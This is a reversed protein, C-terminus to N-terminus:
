ASSEQSASSGVLMDAGLMGVSLAEATVALVEASKVFSVVKATASTSDTLEGFVLVEETTSAFTVVLKDFALVVLEATILDVLTMDGLAVECIVETTAEQVFMTKSLMEAGALEVM